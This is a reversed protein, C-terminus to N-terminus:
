VESLVKEHLVGENLNSIIRNRVSHGSNQPWNLNMFLYLLPSIIALAFLIHSATEIRCFISWGDAFKLGDKLYSLAYVYISMFMILCSIIILNSISITIFGFDLYHKDFFDKFSTLAVVIALFGVAFSFKDKM